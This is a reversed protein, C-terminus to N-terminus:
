IATCNVELGKEGQFVSVKYENFLEEGNGGGRLGQGSIEHVQCNWTGQVIPIVCYKDRRSQSIEDAMIDLNMWATTYTLM